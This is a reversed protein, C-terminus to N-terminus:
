TFYGGTRRLKRPFIQANEDWFVILNHVQLFKFFINSLWPNGRGIKDIFCEVSRVPHKTSLVPRPFGQYLLIGQVERYLLQLYNFCTLSLNYSNLKLWLNFHELGYIKAIRYHLGKINWVEVIQYFLIWLKFYRLDVVDPRLSIPTLFGSNTAFVWNREHLISFSCFHFQLQIFQRDEYKQNFDWSSSSRFWM